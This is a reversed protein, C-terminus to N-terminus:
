RKKGRRTHSAASLVKAADSRMRDREKQRAKRRTPPDIPKVQLEAGQPGLAQGFSRLVDMADRGFGMRKYWFKLVALIQVLLAHQQVSSGGPQHKVLMRLSRREAETTLNPIPEGLAPPQPVHTVHFDVRTWLAVAEDLLEPNDLRFMPWLFRRAFGNAIWREIHQDRFGLTTAGIICARADMRAVGQPEFSAARFGESALARLAGELNASTDQKREWLKALEPFVLTRIQGGTIRDRMAALAKANLDTLVLVDSYHGDLAAIFTSKLNGPPAVLIVGGREAFSGEVRYALHAACLVEILDQATMATNPM